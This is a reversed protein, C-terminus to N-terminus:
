ASGAATRARAVDVRDDGGGRRYKIANEVLNTLVTRLAVPAIRAALALDSRVTLAVRAQEALPALERGLEAVIAPVGVGLLQQVAGPDGQSRVRAGLTRAAALAAARAGFGGGIIAVDARIVEM